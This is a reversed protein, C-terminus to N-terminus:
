NSSLLVSASPLSHSVASSDALPIYRTYERRWIRPDICYLPCFFHLLWLGHHGCSVTKQVCCRLQVKSREPTTVGCWVQALRFWVLGAQPSSTPVFKWVNLLLQSLLPPNERLMGGRLLRGQEQPLGCVWSRRLLM